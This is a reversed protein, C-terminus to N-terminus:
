KKKIQSTLFSPLLFNAFYEGMLNQMDLISMKELLYNNMQMKGDIMCIDQARLLEVFSEYMQGLNIGSLMLMALIQEGDFKSSEEQNETSDSDPNQKKILAVAEMFVQQLAAVQFRNKNSPAKLILKKAFVEEGGSQYKLGDIFKYEFENSM